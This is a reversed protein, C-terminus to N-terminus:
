ENDDNDNGSSASSPSRPNSRSNSKSRPSKSKSKSRPSKSKSNSRSNSRSRSRQNPLMEDELEELIKQELKRRQEEESLAAARNKRMEILRDIGRCIIDSIFDYKTTNRVIVEAKEAVGYVKNKADVLKVELEKIKNTIQRTVARPMSKLEDLKKQTFAVVDRREQEITHGPIVMHRVAVTTPAVIPLLECIPKTCSLALRGTSGILSVISSVFASIISSLAKMSHSTANSIHPISVKIAQGLGELATVVPEDLGYYSLFTRLPGTIIYTSGLVMGGLVVSKIALKIIWNDCIGAGGSQKFKNKMTKNLVRSWFRPKKSVRKSFSKKRKNLNPLNPHEHEIKYLKIENEANENMVALYADLM